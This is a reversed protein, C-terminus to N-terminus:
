PAPLEGRIRRLALQCARQVRVSESRQLDVLLRESQADQWAGLTTIAAIRIPEAKSSTSIKRMQPLAATYKSERLVRIALDHTGDDLDDALWQQAITLTDREGIRYLGYLGERRVATHRDNLCSRLSGLIRAREDADADAYNSFLHQVAFNRFRESEETNNLIAILNDTLQKYGSRRLLNALEHRIVDEGNQDLLAQELLALDSDHKVANKKRLSQAVDDVSTNKDFINTFSADVLNASNVERHELRHESLEYEDSVNTKPYQDSLQTTDSAPGREHSLIIFAALAVISLSLVVVVVRSQM